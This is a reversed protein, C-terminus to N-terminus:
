NEYQLDIYLKFTDGNHEFLTLEKETLLKAIDELSVRHISNM